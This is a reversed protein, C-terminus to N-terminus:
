KPSDRFLTAFLTKLPRISQKQTIQRNPIHGETTLSHTPPNPNLNRSTATLPDLVPISALVIKSLKTIKLVLSNIDSQIGIPPFNCMFYHNRSM